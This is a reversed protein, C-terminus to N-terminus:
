DLWREPYFKVPEKWLRGDHHIHWLNFLVISNKPGSLVGVESKETAKHLLSTPALSSLRMTENFTAQLLDLSSRDNTDRYRDTGTIKIIEDFLMDQYQPWHLLYLICWRLATTTTESGAVYIDAIILELNDM